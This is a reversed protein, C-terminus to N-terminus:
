PVVAVMVTAAVDRGARGDDGVANGILDLRQPSGIGQDSAVEGAEAYDQRDPMDGKDGDFPGDASGPCPRRKHEMGAPEDVEGVAGAESWHEM